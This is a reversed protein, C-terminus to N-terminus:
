RNSMLSMGGSMVTKESGQYSVESGFKVIAKMLDDQVAKKHLNVEPLFSMFLSAAPFAHRASAGEPIPM